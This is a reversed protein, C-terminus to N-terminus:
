NERGGGGSANLALVSCISGNSTTTERITAAPTGHVREAPLLPVFPGNEDDVGAPAM